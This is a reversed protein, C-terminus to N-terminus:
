NILSGPFIGNLGGSKTFNELFSFFNDSTNNKKLKEKKLFFNSFLWLIVGIFSVGFFQSFKKM